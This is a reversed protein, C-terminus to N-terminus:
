YTKEVTSLVHNIVVSNSAENDTIFFSIRDDIEWDRLIPVIHVALNEGSHGGYLRSM